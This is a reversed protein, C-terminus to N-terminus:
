QVEILKRLCTTQGTAIFCPADRMCVSNTSFRDGHRIRTVCVAASQESENSCVAASQDSSGRVNGSRNLPASCLRSHQDSQKHVSSESQICEMHPRVVTSGGLLRSATSEHLGKLGNHKGDTRLTQSLTCSSPATALPAEGSAYPQMHPYQWAYGKYHYWSPDPGYFYYM